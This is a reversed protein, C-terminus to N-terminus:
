ISWLSQTPSLRAARIAPLLGATAGILLAAAMGGAWADPPIIVAWGQARAYGATAPPAPTAGTL